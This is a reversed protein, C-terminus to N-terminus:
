EHTQLLFMYGQETQMDAQNPGLSQTSTLEVCMDKYNRHGATGWSVSLASKILLAHLLVFM